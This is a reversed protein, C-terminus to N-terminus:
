KHASSQRNFLTSFFSKPKFILALKEYQKDTIYQEQQLEKLVEFQKSQDWKYRLAISKIAKQVVDIFQQE